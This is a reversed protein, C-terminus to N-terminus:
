ARPTELARLSMRTPYPTWGPPYRLAWDPPHPRISSARDPCDTDLPGFARLRSRCFIVPAFCAVTLRARHESETCGRYLGSVTVPTRAVQGPAVKIADRWTRFQCELVVPAAAACKRYAIGSAAGPVVEPFWRACKGPCGLVDGPMTKATLPTADEALAEARIALALPVLDAAPGLLVDDLRQPLLALFNIGPQARGPGALDFRSGMDPELGPQRDSRVRFPECPHAPGAGLWSRCAGSRSRVAPPDYCTQLREDCLTTEGDLPLRALLRRVLRSVMSTSIEANRM